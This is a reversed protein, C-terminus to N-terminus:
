LPLMGWKSPAVSSAGFVGGVQRPRDIFLPISKPDVTLCQQGRSPPIYGVAGMLHETWRGAAWGSGRDQM